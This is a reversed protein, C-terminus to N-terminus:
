VVSKRDSALLNRQRVIPKAVVRVEEELGSLTVRIDGGDDFGAVRGQIGKQLVKLTLWLM